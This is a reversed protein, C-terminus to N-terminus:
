RTRDSGKPLFQTVLNRVHEGLRSRDPDFWLADVEGRLWTIQRKALQRTAFIARDRFVAADTVGDLFSWAQRYGVARMAPLDAHVAPDARLRGMEDLFGQALMADFRAAIRAHLPARDSPVLAIKLVRWPLRDSLGGQLESLPRGTLAIVELARQLRQTDGPRIRAASSPDAAALRAHLAPWGASAAEDALRSRM